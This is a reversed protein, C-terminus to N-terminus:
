NALLFIISISYNIVRRPTLGGQTKSPIQETAKMSLLALKFVLLIVVSFIGRSLCAYYGMLLQSVVLVVLMHLLWTGGEYSFHSTKLFYVYSVRYALIGVFM